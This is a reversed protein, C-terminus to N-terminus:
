RKRPHRKAKELRRQLDRKKRAEEERAERKKYPNNLLLTQIIMFGTSAVWYIAIASPLSVGMFLILLPMIWQMVAGQSPNPTGIMMLKSNYWTLLAAIIPVIFYPDPQGLQMWLFHSHSIVETRSIAQYLAMLIPLQIILPLFSAFPNYDYKENLKALETQLKEQTEPDKSSYKQRLEQMEPQVIQMKETTKNQYITLPILIIRIILTIVIIALGYNDGLIDALWIIFRSLNYIIGRDWIGTSNETIPERVSQGCAALFLSVSAILATLRWMRKNTKLKM